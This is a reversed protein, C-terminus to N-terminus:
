RAAGEPESADNPSGGGGRWADRAHGLGYLLSWAALGLLVWRFWWGAQVVFLLAFFVAFAVFLGAAIRHERVTPERFWHEPATGAPPSAASSSRPTESMTAVNYGRSQRAVDGPTV